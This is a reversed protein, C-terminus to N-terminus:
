HGSHSHLKDVVSQGARAGNGVANELAPASDNDTGAFYIRDTPASATQAPGNHSGVTPIVIGHGWGWARVEKISSKQEDTLTNSFRTITEQVFSAFQKDYLLASRMSTELPAYISVVYADGKEQIVLPNIIDTYSDVVRLDWTDYANTRNLPMASYVQITVYPAYRMSRAAKERESDIGVLLHPLQFKPVALVAYKSEVRTVSGDSEVVDTEIGNASETVRVALSQTEVGGIRRAVSTALMGTGGPVSYRKYNCVTGLESQYFNLFCYANVVSTNAGMSSRCYADMISNLTPSKYQSLYASASTADYKKMAPKLRQELPYVPLDDEMAHLTDRFRRLGDLDSKNVSATRLSSDSWLDYVYKGSELIYVDDPCEVLKLDALDLMMLVEDTQDVLYVSGLPVINGYVNESVAAGGARHESEFVLTEVGNKHLVGAASLGSLGAGIVVVDTKRTRSVKPIQNRDRLLSHAVNFQPTGLIPRLAELTQEPVEPSEKRSSNPACSPIVGLFTAGSGLVITYLFARRSSVGAKSLTVDVYWRLRRVQEQM